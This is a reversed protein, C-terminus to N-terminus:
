PLATVGEAVIADPLKSPSFKFTEMLSFPPFVNIFASMAGFLHYEELPSGDSMSFEVLALVSDPRCYKLRSVLERRECMPVVDKAQAGSFDYHWRLIGATYEEDEYFVQPALRSFTTSDANLIDLLAIMENYEPPASKEALKLSNEDMYVKRFRHDILFGGVEPCIKAIAEWKTGFLETWKETSFGAM